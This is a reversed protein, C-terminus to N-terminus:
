AFCSAEKRLWEKDIRFCANRLKEEKRGPLDQKTSM